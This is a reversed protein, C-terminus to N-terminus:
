VELAQDIQQKEDVEAASALGVAKDAMKMQSLVFLTALSKM